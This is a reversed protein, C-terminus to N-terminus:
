RLNFRLPIFDRPISKWKCMISSFHFWLRSKEGAAGWVEEFDVFLFHWTNFRQSLKGAESEQSHLNWLPWVTFLLISIPFFDNFGFKVAQLQRTNQLAQFLELPFCRFPAYEVFKLKRMKKGHQSFTWFSVLLVILSSLTWCTMRSMKLRIRTRYVYIFITVEFDICAM